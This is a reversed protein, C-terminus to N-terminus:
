TRRRAPWRQRSHQVCLIEVQDGAVRYPLAYNEHVVLERTGVVRGPRGLEPQSALLDVQHRIARVLHRAAVPNDRSIYALIADLNRVARRLWVVRM